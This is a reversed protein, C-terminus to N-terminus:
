LSTNRKQKKDRADQLTECLYRHKQQSYEDRLHHVLRSQITKHEWIQICACIALFNQRQGRRACLPIATSNGAFKIVTIQGPLKKLHEPSEEAEFLKKGM